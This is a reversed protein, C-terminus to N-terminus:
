RSAKSTLSPLQWSRTATAYQLQAHLLKRFYRLAIELTLVLDDQVVISLVQLSHTLLVLCLFVARWPRAVSRQYSAVDHPCAVQKVPYFAGHLPACM